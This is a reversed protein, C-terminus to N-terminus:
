EGLREDGRADEGLAKRLRYLILAIGVFLPCMKLTILNKRFYKVIYLYM